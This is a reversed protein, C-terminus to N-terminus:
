PYVIRRNVEGSNIELTSDLDIGSIKLNRYMDLVVPSSFRSAGKKILRKKEKDSLSDTLKLRDGMILLHYEKARYYDRIDGVTLPERRYWKELVQFALAYYEDM